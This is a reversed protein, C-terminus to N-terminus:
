AAPASAPTKRPIRGLSAATSTPCSPRGRGSRRSSPPQPKRGRRGFGLTTRRRRKEAEKLTLMPLTRRRFRKTIVGSFPAVIRSYALMTELRSHNARAVQVQQKAADLAAQAASIQAEAVLDKARADDVEQQAVLEPRM